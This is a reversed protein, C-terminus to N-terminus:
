PSLREIIWQGDALRYRIRDHLRSPRGQWFEINVPKIAFGGWEQPKPIIEENQFMATIEILKNEIIERSSIVTSQHSVHAGIQSGRPRSHFYDTSREENVLCVEGQIRIQREHEHWLFVMAARSNSILEQGKTSQYNTYFLFEGDEIGKLLVVRANPQGSNDTTALTFANPENINDALAEDFWKEFLAIPDASIDAEDLTLKTYNERLNAINAM